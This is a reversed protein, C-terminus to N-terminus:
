KQLSITDCVECEEPDENLGALISEQHESRNPELEPYNATQHKPGLGSLGGFAEPNNLSIVLPTLQLPQQEAPKQFRSFMLGTMDYAVALMNRDAPINAMTPAIIGCDRPMNPGSRTMGAKVTKTVPAKHSASALRSVVPLNHTIPPTGLMHAAEKPMSQSMTHTTRSSSEQVINLSSQSPSRINPKDKNKTNPKNPM